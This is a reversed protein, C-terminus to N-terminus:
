FSVYLSGSANERFYNNANECGGFHKNRGVKGGVVWGVYVACNTGAVSCDAGTANAKLCGGPHQEVTVWVSKAYLRPVSPVPGVQRGPKRPKLKKKKPPQPDQILLGAPSTSGNGIFVECGASVEVIENGLSSVIEVTNGDDIAVNRDEGNVTVVGFNGNLIFDDVFDLNYLLDGVERGHIETLTWSGLLDGAATTLTSQGSGGELSQALDTLELNSGGLAIQFHDSDDAQSWFGLLDGNSLVFTYDDNLITPLELGAIAVMVSYLPSVEQDEVATPESSDDESARATPVSLNGIAALALSVVALLFLPTFSGRKLHTSRIRPKGNSHPSLSRPHM